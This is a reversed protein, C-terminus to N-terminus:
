IELKENQGDGIRLVHQCSLTIKGVAIFPYWLWRVSTALVDSYLTLIGKEGKSTMMTGKWTCDKRCNINCYSQYDHPIFKM